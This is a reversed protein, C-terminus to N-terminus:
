GGPWGKDWPRGEGLQGLFDLWVISRSWPPHLLLLLPVLGLVVLVVWLLRLKWAAEKARQRRDFEHKRGGRGERGGGRGEGEHGVEGKNLRGIHDLEM